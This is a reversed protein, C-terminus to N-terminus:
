CLLWTTISAAVYSVENTESGCAMFNDFVSLGVFNKENNHGNFVRTNTCLKTDWMRLTSDTSASVLEYGNLFRVYSVAKRHGTPVIDDSCLNETRAPM